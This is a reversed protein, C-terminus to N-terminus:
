REVRTVTSTAPTRNVEFRVPVREALERVHTILGVTRGRAGLEEVATTAVDLTEDDLTGFGEDLFISELRAGHGGAMEALHDSLTLALALSTLFTEGGSLTRAPRQEDANRHDVVMFHHAPDLALSYQGSSLQRLLGSAGDVLRQLAEDLLWKEFRNAKLHQGLEHSVRQVATQEAIQARLGEARAVDSRLRELDAEARAMARIVADAPGDHGAVGCEACAVVLEDHRRRYADRLAAARQEAQDARAREAPEREAAWAVLTKWTGALDDRDPAPPELTAVADRAIDFQRWADAMRREAVRHADRARKAVALAAQAGARAEGLGREAEAVAARLEELADPDPYGEIARALEALQERAAALRSDAQAQARAGRAHEAAAGTRASRALALAEEAVALARPPPRGPVAAVQQLCVPCAEGAVLHRALDHAAHERRLAEVHAAAEGVAAEAADLTAAAATCARAAASAAEELAPLGGALRARNGHATAVLELATRDPMAALAHEASTIAHDAHEARAECREVDDAARAAAEALEDVGAPAAVTALLTARRGAERGDAVVRTGEDRLANLEPQVAVIRERLDGLRALHAEAEAVAQPTAGDLGALQESAAQALAAATAARQNAAQAMRRYVDLDLLRVLLEQRGKPTDRLFRAFDGQPLVVCTTFQDFTLGVLETVAKTVGEADGAIVEGAQELRAEATSAGQGSRRVVRSATYARGDITFDFRVRAERKGVSIVPAVARKDLRPVSGYLAFCFADIISTKGAGTPGVLAFLDADAFDVTEADRFATFGSLELRTPRM